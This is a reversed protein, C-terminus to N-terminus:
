VTVASAPVQGRTDPMPRTRTVPGWGASPATTELATAEVMGTSKATLVGTQALAELVGQVMAELARWSLKVIHEAWAEPCLPGTPRPGQRTAAGRQCVGPRVQQAKFGVRRRLAADSCLLAPLANM